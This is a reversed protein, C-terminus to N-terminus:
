PSIKLKVLNEGATDYSADMVLRGQIFLEGRSLRLHNGKGEGTGLYWSSLCSPGPGHM